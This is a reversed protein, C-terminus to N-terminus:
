DENNWFEGPSLLKNIKYSIPLIKTFFKPLIDQSSDQLSDQLNRALEQLLNKYSNMLSRTLNASNKFGPIHKNSSM